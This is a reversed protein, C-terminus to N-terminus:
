RLMLIRRAQSRVREREIENEIQFRLEDCHDFWENSSKTQPNSVKPLPREVSYDIVVPNKEEVVRGKEQNQKM